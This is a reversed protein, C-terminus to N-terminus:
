LACVALVHPSKARRAGSANQDCDPSPCPIKCGVTRAANM